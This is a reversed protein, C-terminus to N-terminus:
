FLRWVNFNIPKISAAVRGNRLADLERLYYARLDRLEPLTYNTASRGAINFSQVPLTPDSTLSELAAEIQNVMTEAHLIKTSLGDLNDKVELYGRDLTTTGNLYVKVSWFYTGPSLTSQTDNITFLYSDGVATAPIKRGGGNGDMYFTATYGQSAPYDGYTLQFQHTDGSIIFYPVHTVLQTM